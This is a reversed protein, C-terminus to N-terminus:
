SADAASYASVARVMAAMSDRAFNRQVRRALPYGARLIPNAPHSLAYICYRVSDDAHRWEVTFREEGHESHGPLTGYAFGKREVEGAEEVLYLVRCPNYSWAGYHRAVVGVVQGEAPAHDTLITVWGLTFGEWRMLAKTARELTAQGEGLLVQHRDAQYGPPPVPWRTMGVEPYSYADSASARLLKNIRTPSPRTPFLM